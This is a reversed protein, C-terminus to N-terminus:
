INLPPKLVWGGTSRRNRGTRPPQWQKSCYFGALVPRFWRDGPPQTKFGDRVFSINIQGSVRSASSWAVAPSFRCSFIIDTSYSILRCLSWIDNDPHSKTVWSETAIFTVSQSHPTFQQLASTHYRSLQLHRPPRATNPPLKLIEPKHSRGQLPSCIKM